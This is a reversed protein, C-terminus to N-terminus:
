QLLSVETTGPLDVQRVVPGGNSEVHFSGWILTYQGPPLGNLAVTNSDPQYVMQGYPVRLLELAPLNAAAMAGQVLWLAYGAEPQVHVILQSSGPGPGLDLQTQDGSVQALVVPTGTFSQDGGLTFRYSGAPVDAAYSGDRGTVVTVPESRDVNIAELEAGAAPTGDPNFAHGTLHVTGALVVEINSADATTRTTGSQSGKRATVVIQAAYPPRSLAFHGDGESLVNESCVDCSVVADSVAAGSADHVVGGFTPAPELTIDGLDLSDPVPEREVMQPEFGVAEVAFILRDGNSSLPLEFRGDPSTVERDEVHFRRIPDGGEAVVRGRFVQKRKLVIKLPDGGPTATVAGDQEYNSHRVEVTYTAGPRLAPVEFHGRGDTVAPEGSHRSLAVSAGSVPTGETDVVDGTLRAGPQLDVALRSTEGDAVTIRQRESALYEPHTAAIWYTGSPLGRLRVLGDAGSPRDSRFSAVQDQWAVVDAGEVRRGESAVTVEATAHPELHLEVNSAPATVKAQGGGWDSHHAHLEYFGPTPVSAEFRGEADATVTDGTPSVLISVGAAARNYEDLVRGSIFTGRSMVLEVPTEGARVGVPMSVDKFGPAKAALAYEGLGLPGFSALEGTHARRRAVPDGSPTTLTLEPTPVPGGKDDVVTVLLNGGPVLELVVQTLPQDLMVVRPAASLGRYSATVTLQDPYLNEFRGPGSPPTLERSLHDATLQIRAPVTKGGSQATVVLTRPKLLVFHVPQAGAEVQAAVEPLFGDAEALVYFPGQGLGKLEFIGNSRSEVAHPLPVRRSIAFVRAGGISQGRDDSVTGGLSRLPPLYLEVPDGPAARDQVGDGLGSARGWVTFSVGALHEFRFRGQADSTTQAAAQLFGRQQNLLQAVRAASERARCSLIAEGCDACRVTTLDAQASSALFVEARPVPKGEPDLVRGELTLGEGQGAAVKVEEFAPLAAEGSAASEEPTRLRLWVLLAVGVAAAGLGILGWRRM